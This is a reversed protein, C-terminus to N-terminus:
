SSRRNKFDKEWLNPDPDYATVIYCSQTNEDVALVVHIPRNGVFGLILCSPLPEDDPYEVIKEGSKIITLMDERSIIREFM